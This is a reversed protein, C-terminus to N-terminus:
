SMALRSAIAKEFDRAFEGSILFRMAARLAESKVRGFAVEFSRQANEWLIDSEALRSCGAPTLRVLRNRRDSRDIDISVLGDRDLPKLTHALAGADMVLADALRGVTTPESRRIQALIARQTTKLGSPALAADYLQSIRRSAKRLATCSCRGPQSKLDNKQSM